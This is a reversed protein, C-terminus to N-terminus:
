FGQFWAWSACKLNCPSSVKFSSQHSSVKVLNNWALMQEAGSGQPDTYRKASELRFLKCCRLECILRQFQTTIAPALCRDSWNCVFQRFVEDVGWLVQRFSGTIFVVNNLWVYIHLPSNRVWGSDQIKTLLDRLFFCLKELGHNGQPRGDNLPRFSM